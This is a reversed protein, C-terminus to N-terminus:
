RKYGIMRLFEKRKKEDAETKSVRPRPLRRGGGLAVDRNPKRVIAECSEGHCLFVSCVEPTQQIRNLVNVPVRGAARGRLHPRRRGAM